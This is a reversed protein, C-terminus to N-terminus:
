CTRGTGACPSRSCSASRRRCSRWTSRAQGRHQLKAPVPATVFADYLEEYLSGVQFGAASAWRANGYKITDIYARQAKLLLGAKEELDRDMQTEPLRIPAKRFREHTIQGLNYQAFALFFDTSLREQNEIQQRFLFM